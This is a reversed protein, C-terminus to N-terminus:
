DEKYEVVYQETYNIMHLGIPKFKRYISPWDNFLTTSKGQAARSWWEYLTANYKNVTIWRKKFDISETLLLPLIKIGLPYTGRHNKSVFARTLLLATDLNYGYWGASCIYNGIDDTLIYYKGTQYKGNKLLFFINESESRYDPHYNKTINEDTIERFAKELLLNASLNSLNQIGILKM